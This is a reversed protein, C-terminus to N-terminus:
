GGILGQNFSEHITLHGGDQDMKIGRMHNVIKDPKKLADLAKLSTTAGRLFNVQTVSRSPGDFVSSSTITYPDRLARRDSSRYAEGVSLTVASGPKTATNMTTRFVDVESTPLSKKAM